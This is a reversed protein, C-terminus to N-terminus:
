FEWDIGAFLRLDNHKRMPDVKSQYEHALGATLSIRSEEDILLSWAANNVWRFEGLDGLDLFITSDFTLKQREAITWEGEIGFMGEPRVSDNTSGFEKIAGAGALLNLRWPPPERLKYGVGAHASARHEWSQFEDFDYRADAFYLWKTGPNLWENRVGGSFKNDTRVASSQAIYYSADFLTRIEATERTALFKTTLNANDTNGSTHSAGLTLKFKWDGDVSKAAEKPGTEQPAAEHAKVEAAPPKANADEEMPAAPPEAEDPIIEVAARQVTLEGLVPHRFRIAQETLQLIEVRLVEGSSLRIQEARALDGCMVAVIVALVSSQAANFM